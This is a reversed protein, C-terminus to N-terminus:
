YENMQLFQMKIINLCFCQNSILPLLSRLQLLLIVDSLRINTMLNNSFKKNFYWSSTVTVQEM